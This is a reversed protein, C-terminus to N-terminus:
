KGEESGATVMLKGRNETFTNTYTPWVNNVPTQMCVPTSTHRYNFTGVTVLKKWSEYVQRQHQKELGDAREGGKRSVGRM